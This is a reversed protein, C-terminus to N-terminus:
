PGSVVWIRQSDFFWPAGTPGVIATGLGDGCPFSRRSGDPRFRVVAHTSTTVWVGGDATGVIGRPGGGDLDGLAFETITGSPTIRAIKQAALLTIWVNGDRGVTIAEPQAAPSPIEFRTFAGTNVDFCHVANNERDTIWLRGDPGLAMRHPAFRRKAWSPDRHVAVSGDPRLEAVFKRISSHFWLRGTRDATLGRPYSGAEPLVYERGASGDPAIRGARNAVDKTYWIGGDAGVALGSLGQEAANGPVFPTQTGDAAIRVIRNGGRDAYWVTGDARASLAVDHEDGSRQFARCLPKAAPGRVSAKQALTSGEASAVATASAAWAAL